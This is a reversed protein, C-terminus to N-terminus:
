FSKFGIAERCEILTKNASEVAKDRGMKVVKRLYLEDNEIDNIKERIPTLFHILDEALDKKL